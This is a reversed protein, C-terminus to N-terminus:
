LNKVQSFVFPLVLIYENGHKPNRMKIYSAYKLAEENKTKGYIMSTNHPKPLTPKIPVKNSGVLLKKSNELREREIFKHKIEIPDPGDILLNRDIRKEPRREAQIGQIQKKELNKLKETSM